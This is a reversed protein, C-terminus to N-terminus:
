SFRKGALGPPRSAQGIETENGYGYATDIHRYGCEIAARLSPAVDDGTVNV